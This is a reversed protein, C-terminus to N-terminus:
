VFNDNTESAELSLQVLVYSIILESKLKQM